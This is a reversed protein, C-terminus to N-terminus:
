TPTSRMSYTLIKTRTSVLARENDRFRRDLVQLHEGPLRGGVPTKVDQKPLVRLMQAGSPPGASRDSTFTNGPGSANGSTSRGSPRSGSTGVAAGTWCGGLSVRTSQAM